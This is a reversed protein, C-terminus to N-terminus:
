LVKFGLGIDIFADVEIIGMLWPWMCPLNVCAMIFTPMAVHLPCYILPEFTLGTTWDM